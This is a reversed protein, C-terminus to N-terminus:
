FEVERCVARMRRETSAGIRLGFWEIPENATVLVPTLQEYFRDFIERLMRANREAQDHEAFGIGQRPLPIKDLDDLMVVDYKTLDAYVAGTRSNNFADHYSEALNAGTIRCVVRRHEVHLQGFKRWLMRSKAEGTDHSWLWVGPHSGAWTDATDWAALNPVLSRDIKMQFQPPCFEKFREMRQDRVLQGIDPPAPDPIPQGDAPLLGLREWEKRFFSGIPQPDENDTKM